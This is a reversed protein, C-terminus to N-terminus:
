FAAPPPEPEALPLKMTLRLESGLRRLADSRLACVRQKTCGLHDAVDRLTSQEFVLTKIVAAHRPPLKRLLAPVLPKAAAIDANLERDGASYEGVITDILECKENTTGINVEGFLSAERSRRRCNRRAFRTM